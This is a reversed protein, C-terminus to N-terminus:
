YCLAGRLVSDNQRACFRAEHKIKWGSARVRGM